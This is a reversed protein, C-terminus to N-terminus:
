LEYHRNFDTCLLIDVQDSAAETRAAQVAESIGLLQKALAAERAATSQNDRPEYSAAILLKRHQLRLLVVVTDYSDVPIQTARCRKTV